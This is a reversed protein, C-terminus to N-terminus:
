LNSLLELFQDKRGRSISLSKGNELVVYGGESRVFKKVYNLNVIYSNHIRFFGSASIVEEFKGIQKTVLVTKGSKLHVNTYNGDSEFYLIDDVPVLEVGDANNLAIKRITPSNAKLTDQLLSLQSRKPVPTEGEVRALADQLESAKVPKLLFDIASARIAQVAYKDISTTIILQFDISPLLDLMEFGSMGPMVVDLFILQPKHKLIQVLADNGTTSTAIIDVPLQHKEILYRLDNICEQEDDIIITKIM